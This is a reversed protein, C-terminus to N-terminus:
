TTNNWEETIFSEIFIIEVYFPDQFDFNHFCGRSFTVIKFRKVNSNKVAVIGWWLQMVFGNITIAIYIIFNQIQVTQVTHETLQLICMQVKRTDKSLGVNLIFNINRTVTGFSSLCACSNYQHCWLCRM